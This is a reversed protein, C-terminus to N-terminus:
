EDFIALAVDSQLERREETQSPDGLELYNDRLLVDVANGSTITRDEVTVPGTADLLEALAPADISLVLDVEGIPTRAALDALISGVVPFNPSTSTTRWERGFDWIRRYMRALEDPVAARDETLALLKDTAFFETSEFEGNEITVIGASLHMGMGARVEANNAALVLVDTPGVLLDRATALRGQLEALDVDAEALRDDLRAAASRLPGALDSRDVAAGGAVEERIAAVADLAATTLAVKGGADGTADLAVEIDVLADDAVDAIEGLRATLDRVGDIQDGVM